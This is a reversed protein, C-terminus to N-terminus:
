VSAYETLSPHSPERSLFEDVELKGYLDAVKCLKAYLDDTYQTLTM